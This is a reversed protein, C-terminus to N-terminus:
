PPNECVNKMWDRGTGQQGSASGCDQESWNGSTSFNLIKLKANMYYPGQDYTAASSAIPVETGPALGAEPGVDNLNVLLAKNKWGHPVAAHCWSCRLNTGIRKAHMAHLNTDRPGGFGSEFGARDGENAETAYNAFSHCRFCLGSDDVGTQANWPGKLIFDQTSGHPGWPSNGSPVVTGTATTGGHCDSCYMTQNGINAGNWPALFLNTSGSMNRVAASRGTGDIVPHWSRHNRGPDGQDPIPAQFEMAQNTFQLLDNTGSPTGGGSDGLSPRSGIPYLGDDDYGYDSHCKLCVQYERTVYASAVATSAATGGDGQKVDYSSPLSLFASNGYLPEVGWTGRLAGSAINTHGPAHEHAPEAASGLGNFLENRMARHPNHCDTCEAHRNLPNTRGLLVRSETLDANVVDHTETATQQDNGIVPMHRPLNFEGEINRVEGGGNNTVPTASHCQYCTEEQAADGGSKPTAASDTGERLLRRAGHVTHADHCNLCSARWVPLAAPFEREAAPGALYVEDASAPSAHASTAWGDKRHCGLCVIDQTESFIGEAPAANQFRNLRLFKNNTTADVSVIHPDHCSACQVQAAGGAGTAELPLTPRTGPSRLGIHAENAPDRLEGDTNALLTDYTFSIPHDNRLDTGLNRTFGTQEGSDAPMVGGAASGSMGITFDLTGGIVNVTGIALTGDHCSLCLRSSGAPQDLQGAISEADLSSSTYPTYTQQSLQRNWLPTGPATSAAHPTHCFVCIRSESDAVVEGPGSVSLNHRTSAIDSVSQAWGTAAILTLVAALWGTARM